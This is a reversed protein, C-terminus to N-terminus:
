SGEVTVRWDHSARNWGSVALHVDQVLRRITERAGTQEDLAMTNECIKLTVDLEHFTASVPLDPSYTVSNNWGYIFGGVASASKCRGDYHRSSMLMLLKVTELPLPLNFLPRAVVEIKM